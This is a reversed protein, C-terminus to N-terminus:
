AEEVDVDIVRWILGDSKLLIYYNLYSKPKVSREPEGPATALIEAEIAPYLVVVSGDDQLNAETIEPAHTVEGGTVIWGDDSYRLANARGSECFDCGPLSLADWVATDGTAFMKPFEQIFFEATVVAGQLDSREANEPLIELLEEDTLGAADATPSASPSASASPSGSESPSTVATPTPTYTTIPDSGGCGAIGLAFVAIASGTALAKAMNKVDMGVVM